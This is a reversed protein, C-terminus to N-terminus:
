GNKEVGVSGDKKDGEGGEMLFPEVINKTSM